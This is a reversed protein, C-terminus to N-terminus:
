GAVLWDRMSDSWDRIWVLDELGVGGARVGSREAYEM